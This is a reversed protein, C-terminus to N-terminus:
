FEADGFLSVRLALYVDSERDVYIKRENGANTGAGLAQLLNASTTRQTSATAASKYLQADYLRARLEADTDVTLADLRTKHSQYVSYILENDVTDVNLVECTVIISVLYKCKNWNTRPDGSLLWGALALLKDQAKLAMYDNGSRQAGTVSAYQWVRKVADSPKSFGFAQFMALLMAVAQRSNWIAVTRKVDSGNPTAHNDVMKAVHKAASKIASTIHAASVQALSALSIATMREKVHKSDIASVDAIQPASFLREEREINSENQKTM